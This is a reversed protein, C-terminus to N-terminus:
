RRKTQERMSHRINNTSQSEITSIAPYPISAKTKSTFVSLLVNIYNLYMIWFSIMNRLQWNARTNARDSM